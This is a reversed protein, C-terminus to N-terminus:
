RPRPQGEVLPRHQGERRVARPHARQGERRVPPPQHAGALVLAGAHERQARAGRRRERDLHPRRALHARASVLGAVKSVPLLRWVAFVVAGGVLCAMVFGAPRPLLAPPEVQTTAPADKFGTVMGLLLNQKELISSTVVGAVHLGILVVLTWAAVEHVEKVAHASGKALALPGSWEPGLAVVVGTLTVTLLAALLMLVMVAGVPNHGLSREPRGRVLESLAKRVAAPSRVFDSFRAHRTGVFGWVVRFLALGLLGLGLRMHLPTNADEDATLFAGLVLVAFLLHTARVALDWVKIRKM